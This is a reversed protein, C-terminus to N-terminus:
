VVRERRTGEQLAHQLQTTPLAEMWEPKTILRAGRKYRFYSWMWQILVLVRNRFGILYLIHVFCWTLWALLGSTLLKGTQVVAAARGVTAMMGKDFYHFSERESGRLDHLINRAAAEGEQIAAPAVGPVLQGDDGVFRAQDGVVFIEPRGRLSLDREVPVRGAPDLPVCLALNLPSARVGAAWLVTAARLSEGGADVGHEHVRTVRTDTWVTVGLRELERAAAQSLEPAFTPLIRPGGEILVVRTSSPDIRRFDRGLTHRSLEGLAGALEVGTPGGGVVVFTLLERRRNPEDCVEALEFATLVRRRIETAQELTKLGPAHPEWEDHGFYSHTAGAALILYDYQLDGTDVHLCRDDLDIGTAEGLRVLVNKYRRLISRIPMSIDAPSLGATAVQYLLPQFLHHNRRDVVVIELDPSRSRALERAARLGAFGGGVIVVRKPGAREIRAPPSAM